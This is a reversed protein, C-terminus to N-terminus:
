RGGGSGFGLGERFIWSAGLAILGLGILVLALSGFDGFTTLLSYWVDAQQVVFVVPASDLYGSSLVKIRLPSRDFEYDTGISIGPKSLGNTWEAGGISADVNAFYGHTTSGEGEDFLFRVARDNGPLPQIPDDAYAEITSNSVSTNFLRVEDQRGIWEWSTNLSTNATTLSIASSITDDRSVVLDNATANYRGCVATFPDASTGRPNPAEITARATHTGNDHYTSWNGADYQILISTNDYALVDYTADLNADSGLEVAACVTWSGDSINEPAGASVHSGEGDFLLANELTAQATIGNTYTLDGGVQVFSDMVPEVTATDPEGLIDIGAGFAAGLVIALVVVVLVAQGVTQATSEISDAGSM